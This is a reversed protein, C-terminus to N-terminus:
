CGYSIAWLQTDEASPAYRTRQCSTSRQDANHRVSGASLISWAGSQLHLVPVPPENTGYSRCDPSMDAFQRSITRMLIQRVELFQHVAFTVGKSNVASDPLDSLVEPPHSQPSKLQKAKGKKPLEPSGKGDSSNVRHWEKMWVHAPKAAEIVQKRSM